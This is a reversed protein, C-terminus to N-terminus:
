YYESLSLYSTNQDYTNLLVYFNKTNELIFWMIWYVSTHLNELNVEKMWQAFSRTFQNGKEMHLYANYLILYMYRELFDHCLRSYHQKKEGSSSRAQRGTSM